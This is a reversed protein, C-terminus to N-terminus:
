RFCGNADRKRHTFTPPPTAVRQNNMFRGYKDRLRKMDREHVHEKVHCSTCLFEINRPINNWEDRDRHHYCRAHPDVVFEKCRECVNKPLRKTSWAAIALRRKRSWHKGHKFGPNREDNQYGPTRERWRQINKSHKASCSQSCFRRGRRIASPYAGFPAKCEACRKTIVPQVPAKARLGRSM